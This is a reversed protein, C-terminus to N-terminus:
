KNWSIIATTLDVINLNLVVCVRTDIYIYIYIYINTIKYGWNLFTNNVLYM